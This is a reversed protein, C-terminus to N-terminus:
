EHEEAEPLVIGRRKFIEELVGVGDSVQMRKQRERAEQAEQWERSTKVRQYVDLGLEFRMKQLMLLLKRYDKVVTTLAPFPKGLERQEEHLENIRKKQFAVLNVLENLPKLDNTSTSSPPKALDSSLAGRHISMRLRTLEKELAVRSLDQAEGWQEQIIRAVTRASEGSALRNIIVALKEKGLKQFRDSEMIM